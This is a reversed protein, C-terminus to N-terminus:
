RANALIIHFSPPPPKCGPGPTVDLREIKTQFGQSSVTVTYFGTRSGEQLGCEPGCVKSYSVGDSSSYIVNSSSIPVGKADEIYLVMVPQLEATIPGCGTDGGGACAAMVVGLLTSGFVSYSQRRM